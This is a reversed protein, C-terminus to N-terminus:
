FQDKKSTKYDLKKRTGEVPDNFYKSQDLFHEKLGAMPELAAKYKEKQGREWEEDPTECVYFVENNKGEIVYPQGNEDLQHDYALKNLARKLRGGKDLVLHQHMGPNEPPLESTLPGSVTSQRVKRVRKTGVETNDEKKNSM